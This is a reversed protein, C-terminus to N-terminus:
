GRYRPGATAVVDLFAAEIAELRDTHSYVRVYPKGRLTGTVLVIWKGRERHSTVDLGYRRIATRLEHITM